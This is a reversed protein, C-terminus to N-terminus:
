GIGARATDFNENEAGDLLEPVQKCWVRSRGNFNLLQGRVGAM